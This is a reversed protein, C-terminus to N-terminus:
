HHHHEHSDQMQASSSTQEQHIHHHAHGPQEGHTATEHVPNSHNHAAHDHGLTGWITLVGFLIIVLAMAWRLQRRQLLRNLRQAALGALLLSPLTGAGFALMTFGSLVWHGQAMSYALASYVLGCPLWGWLAGILLGKGPHNVPMLRKGIPQLYAWLYRGASELYTLGHWWNALYLGMAILLLGALWRLWVAGGSSTIQQAFVGVLIGMLVYSLLRGINYSCLIIFRRRSKQPPVAMGLAGMIGGCMGICHASSFLGLLFATILVSFDLNM